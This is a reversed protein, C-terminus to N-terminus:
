GSVRFDLYRLGGLVSPLGLRIVLRLASVRFGVGPLGGSGRDVSGDSLFWWLGLGVKRLLFGFWLWGGRAGGGRGGECLFDLAHLEM